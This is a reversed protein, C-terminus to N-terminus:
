PYPAGALNSAGARVNIQDRRPAVLGPAAGTDRGHDRNPSALCVSLAIFNSVKNAAVAATRSLAAAACAACTAASQPSLVIEITSVLTFFTTFVQFIWPMAPLTRPMSTRGASLM